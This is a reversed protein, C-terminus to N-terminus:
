AMRQLARYIMDAGFGVAEVPIREDAAHIYHTLEFDPDLQMPLFGYTQIGLRAFLRGDTVGPMMMPIPIGEPDAEKLVGALTDFFGMDVRDPCPSYDYIEIEVHDGVLQHIERIMDDSTFGPLLRGDMSITIESPIVNIKDSGALGTPSVTNHLLADFLEGQKGLLNLVRDTLAPNLLQRLITGTPFGLGDALGEIMMRAPATVHVPLRSYTLRGLLDVLKAMAGDGRVPMSGHGGQGTIRAQMWCSQKEAIMIPYFKKGGIYLTFGGFEGIAYRVGEFLHAHQEVLYEAGYTGLSEEDSVVALIIDGPPTIGEAKLRLLASIMMALGGKMDLAGRGWIYGDVIEAAFPPHTWDQNATTVVDAHGYLLFPAANGAGKLRAVLNSRKDDLALITTEIGAGTLLRDIYAICAAENGPPNTTDFRILEQLLEAPLSAIPIDTSMHNEGTQTAIMNSLLM